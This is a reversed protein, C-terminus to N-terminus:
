HARTRLAANASPTQNRADLDNSSKHIGAKAPIVPPYLPFPPPSPHPLAPTGARLVANARPAQNRADLDNASKRIGAKAPIAPSFPIRAQNRTKTLILIKLIPPIKLIENRGPKRKESYRFIEGSRVSTLAQRSFVRPPIFGSFGIIV